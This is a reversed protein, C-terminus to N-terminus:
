ADARVSARKEINRLMSLLGHVHLPKLYVHVYSPSVKKRLDRLQTDMTDTFIAVQDPRQSEPMNALSNVLERNSNDNTIDVVLLDTHDAGLLELAHDPTTARSVDHGLEGLLRRTPTDQTPGNPAPLVVVRLALRASAMM